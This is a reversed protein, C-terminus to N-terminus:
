DPGPARMLLINRAGCTECVLYREMRKSGEAVPVDMVLLVGDDREPCRVIKTADRALINGAEVWKKAKESIM